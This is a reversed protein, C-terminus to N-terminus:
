KELSQLSTYKKFETDCRIKSKIYFLPYATKFFYKKIKGLKDQHEVFVLLFDVTEHTFRVKFNIVPKGKVIENTRWVKINEDGQNALEIIEKIWSIRAGRYLCINRLKGNALEIRHQKHICNDPCILSVNDNNCPLVNFKEEESLSIVHWFIENKSKIKKNCDIYIFKGLLKPRNNRDLLENNFLTYLSSIMTNIDRSETLKLPRTLKASHM